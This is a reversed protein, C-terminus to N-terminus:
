PQNNQKKLLDRIEQMTTLMENNINATKSTTEESINPVETGTTYPEKFKRLEKLIFDRIEEYFVIGKLVTEPGKQNAGSYGATEIHISGIKLARDFPGAKTSINTITRFPVHRRTITIIGEKSYIEPMTDGTKAKVSYEISRFYPPIILLTPILWILNPIITWLNVAIFYDSIIQNASPNNPDTAVMFAIAIFSIIVSLWILIFSLIAQLLIKNQYAKVPKFITGNTIPTIPPKIVKEDVKQNRIKTM